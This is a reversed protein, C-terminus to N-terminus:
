HLLVDETYYFMNCRLMQPFKGFKKTVNRQTRRCMVSDLYVRSKFSRMTEMESSSECLTQPLGLTM